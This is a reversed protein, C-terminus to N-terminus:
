KSDPFKKMWDPWVPTFTNLNTLQNWKLKWLGKIGVPRVASDMFVFDMYGNHRNTVIGKMWESITPSSPMDGEFAPPEGIPDAWACCYLSDFFMPVTGASKVNPTKWYRTAEFYAHEQDTNNEVWLNLGFSGYAGRVFTNYNIDTGWLDSLVGWACRPWKGGKTQPVKTTPCCWSAFNAKTDDITRGGKMGVYPRMVEIWTFGTGGMFTQFFYGNNDNTYAMFALSWQKLQAMCAAQQAQNKAKALAPMLISMLLAIIAIVVLLEILTFGKNRQSM